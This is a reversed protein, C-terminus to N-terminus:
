AQRTKPVPRTKAVRAKVNVNLPVPMTAQGLLYDVLLPVPRGTAGKAAGGKWATGAIDLHAWSFKSSFRQLFKAATVAGGARGAVNAVDAFNTKLGEAYEDDLPMRWCLDLSSEGADMLAQGLQDDGAFLGSRVGGLAVVCAGTLTAIDVVARPKFREAYTLADCLVLRGEADTNLIEITQGSMSTVVDGPKVSRGDPMNECAPILGVVNIAPKLDALARFTGLVSAAGCMDFKMEDMEAAPKISIGGTDFTIGKGILVVPAEAKACGDYRLVIFRPPEDSGRSVALFAGMGLKAIEKSGLIEAKLGPLKGLEKAAGALLVPTAYNAPRNAWEKALEIGKVLALGKDFGAQVMAADSTAFTVKGLKSATSSPKTTSYAYAADACAVVAAQLVRDTVAHLANLSVLVTKVNATKLANVAAAMASRLSKPSADGAGVLVVRKASIGVAKYTTLLKGPKCELDGARVASAALMSAADDGAVMDQPVLVILADYKEACVRSRSSTKLEFDM